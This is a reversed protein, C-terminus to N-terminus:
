RECRKCSHCRATRKMSCFLATTERWGRSFRHRLRATATVGFFCGRALSIWRAPSSPPRRRSARGVTMACCAVACAVSPSRANAHKLGRLDVAARRCRSRRDSQPNELAKAIKEAREFAEDVVIRRDVVFWIRRASRRKPDGAQAALAYVAIDLCATKGSATPLDIADPWRGAAAREALM